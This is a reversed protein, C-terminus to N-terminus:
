NNTLANLETVNRIKVKSNDSKWVYINGDFTYVKKRGFKEKAENLLNLRRKVLDEAIGLNTGKLKSCNKMILNRQQTREFIIVTPRAKARNNGIRFCRQIDDQQLEINMKDKFIKRVNEKLNENEVDELGYLCVNKSKENQKLGEIQLELSVIKEEYSNVKKELERAKDNVKKLIMAVFEDNEFLEKITERVISKMDQPVKPAM